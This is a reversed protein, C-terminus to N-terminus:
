RTYQALMTQGSMLGRTAVARQLCLLSTLARALFEGVRSNLCGQRKALLYVPHRTALWWLRTSFGIPEYILGRFRWGQKKGIEALAACSWRTMHHPPQDLYDAEALFRSPRRDSPIAVWLAAEPASWHSATEFLSEPQDLHELIQFAVIVNRPQRNNLSSLMTGIKLVEADLGQSSARDIASTSFDVGFASVGVSRCSKLFEGNGCGIEGVRDAATLHSLLYGFEWRVAPYLPLIQYVLNYWDSEPALFPDAFELGCARCKQMQYTKDPINVAASLSAQANSDGSYFRHQTALEITELPTYRECSCAPCVIIEKKFGMKKQDAM